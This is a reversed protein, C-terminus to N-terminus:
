HAYSVHAEADVALQNIIDYTTVMGVLVNSKVIPISHFINEKFIALAVSINEDPDLKAIGTTMIDDVTYKEMRIDEIKDDDHDNLNTNRFLLYDSKSVMGKLIFDQVIPVHHIKHNEFIAAVKAITDGPELTILDTTMITSVPHLLNM